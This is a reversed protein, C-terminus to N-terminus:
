KYINPQSSAETKNGQCVCNIQKGENLGQPGIVKSFLSWGLYVDLGHRKINSIPQTFFNWNSILNRSYNPVRQLGFDDISNKM